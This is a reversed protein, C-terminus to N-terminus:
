VHQIEDKYFVDAEYSRKFLGSLYFGLVMNQLDVCHWLNVLQWEPGPFCRSTVGSVKVM